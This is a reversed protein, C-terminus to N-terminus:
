LEDFLVLQIDIYEFYMYVSTCTRIQLQDPLDYLV